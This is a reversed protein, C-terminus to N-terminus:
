RRALYLWYQEDRTRGEPQTLSVDYPIAAADGFV